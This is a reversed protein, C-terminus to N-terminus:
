ASALTIISQVTLSQTLSKTVTDLFRNWLVGTNAGANGDIFFGYEKFTNAVEAMTFYCELYSVNSVATSATVSKRYVETGLQTDAVNPAASGTGLACYNVIGTNTTINALRQMPVTRGVTTTLNRVTQRSVMFEGHLLSLLFDLSAKCDNAAKEAYLNNAILFQRKEGIAVIKKELRKAKRSTMDCVTFIHVGTVQEQNLSNDTAFADKKM